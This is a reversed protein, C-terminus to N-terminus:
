APNISLGNGTWLLVAILGSTKGKGSTLSCRANGVNELRAAVLLVGKTVRNELELYEGTEELCEDRAGGCVVVWGPKTGGTGEIRALDKKETTTFIETQWPLNLGNIKSLAGAKCTLAGKLVKCGENEPEKLEMETIKAKNPGEIVGVISGPPGSDGCEVQVGLNFDELRLSFALLRVTDTKGAPIGLSQWKGTGNAKTCQNDEYKTLGSGELCLLWLAAASANGALAMSMMLMSM